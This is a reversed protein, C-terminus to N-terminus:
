EVGNCAGDINRDFSNIAKTCEGKFKVNAFGAELYLFSEIASHADKAHIIREKTKSSAKIRGTSTLYLVRGKVYFNEM